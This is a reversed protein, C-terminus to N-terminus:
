VSPVSGRLYIAREPERPSRAFKFVNATTLNRTTQLRTLMPDADDIADMIGRESKNGNNTEISPISRKKGVM